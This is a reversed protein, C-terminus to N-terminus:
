GTGQWSLFVGFITATMYMMFTYIAAPVGVPISELVSLAIYLALTSNHIGVEFGIARSSPSDLGIMRPILYGSFMSILNFSLIAVGLAAFSAVILDLEKVLAIVAFSALVIGSLIKFFRGARESFAPFRHATFMGLAVPILVVCVVQVVKGFQMPVITDAAGVPVFFDIAFNSILPLTIIALVTNLATLSINLAVNGGFIHSFLNATVGGPSAALIMMGVAFEPSLKTLYCIALCVPPLILVQLVLAAIVARKRQTVRVFDEVKLELGLGFTVLVMAALLVTPLMELFTM